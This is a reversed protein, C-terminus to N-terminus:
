ARAPPPGSDNLRDLTAFLAARQARSEERFERRQERSEEIMEDTRRVMDELKQEAVRLWKENARTAREHRLTQERIFARFDDETM